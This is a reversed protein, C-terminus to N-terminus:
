QWRDDKADGGTQIADALVEIHLKYETAADYVTKPIQVGSLLTQSIDGSRIKGNYCFCQDSSDYRWNNSWNNEPNDPDAFLKLTLMVASDDSRKFQLENGVLDAKSFDSFEDSGGVVNGDTDYWMPVFRVRLYEDNKGRVDYIQVAKDISYSDLLHNSSDKDQTWIYSAEENDSLTDIDKQDERVQVNAEAPKFENKRDVSRYMVAFAALPAIFMAAIISSLIIMQKKKTKM